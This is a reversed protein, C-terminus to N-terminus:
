KLVILKKTEVFNGAQMMYFYVGSSFKSADFNIKYKGASKEENVLVAIEKGLIDYIKLAVFGTRPISYEITTAPNFPNPYNQLLKFKGPMEFNNGPVGTVTSASSRYITGSKTGAYLYNDMDLALFSVVSNIGNVPTWTDGDDTSYTVGFASSKYIVDKSNIIINSVLSDDRIANKSVWTVGSDKSAYIGYNSSGAFIYGKSNVAMTTIILPNSSGMRTWTKGANQSRFVGSWTGAFMYNNVTDILFCGIHPDSLSPDMSLWTTDNGHLYFSGGNFTGAYMINETSNIALSVINKNSLGSNMENWVTDNNNLRFVGVGAKNTPSSNWVGAFVNGKKDSALATISPNTPLGSDGSKWSKGSDASFYIGKSTGAFIKGQPTITIAYIFAGANINLQNWFSQQANLSFSIIFILMFIKGLCNTSQKM